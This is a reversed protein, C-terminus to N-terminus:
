PNEKQQKFLIAYRRLVDSLRMIEDVSLSAGEDNETTITIGNYTPHLDCDIMFATDDPSFSVADEEKGAADKGWARVDADDLIPADLIPLRGPTPQAPKMIFLEYDKETAVCGSPLLWNAFAIAHRMILSRDISPEAAPTGSEDLVLLDEQCHKFTISGDGWKFHGNVDFAGAGKSEEDKAHLPVGVNDRMKDAKVWRPSPQAEKLHYNGMEDATCNDWIWRQANKWATEHDPMHVPQVGKVTYIQSYYVLAEVSKILENVKNSEM